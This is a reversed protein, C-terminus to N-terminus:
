LDGTNTNPFARNPGWIIRTVGPGGPASSGGGTTGRSGGGGGGYTGGTGGVATATTGGPTFAFTLPDIGRGGPMGNTQISGSATGNAGVVGGGSGPQPSNGNGRGGNGGVQQYDLSPPDTGGIYIAGGAGGLPSAVSGPQGIGGSGATIDWTTNTTTRRAYQLNGADIILLDGPAVPVNNAYLVAGGGGGASGAGSNSTSNGAAGGAGVMLLCISTVGAPITWNLQPNGSTRQIQGTPQVKGRVDAVTCHYDVGGRNVLLLDTDLLSSFRSANCQYDVGGRNVLLLDTGPLSLIKDATTRYDNGGRNVVILDTTPQVTSM